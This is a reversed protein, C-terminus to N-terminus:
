NVPHAALWDPDYRHIYRDYRILADKENDTANDSCNILLYEGEEVTEDSIGDWDILDSEIDEPEAEVGLPCSFCFCCGQEKGDRNQTEIQDPHDCGFGNNADTEANLFKCVRAFEDFVVCRKTKGEM